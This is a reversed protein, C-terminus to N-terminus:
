TLYYVLIWFIFYFIYFYFLYHSDYLLLNGLKKDKLAKPNMEIRASHFPVYQDQTSSILLINNFLGLTQTQSLKYLLTERPNAADVLALESLSSGHESKHIKRLAWLGLLKFIYKYKSTYFNINFYNTSNKKKM